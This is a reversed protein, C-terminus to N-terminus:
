CVHVIMLLVTELMHCIICRVKGLNAAVMDDVEGVLLGNKTLHELITRTALRHMAAWSTGPKISTAVAKVAELVGTYVMRQDDTFKGSVPFSCTIDACYCHYEAGMDLLAIDGHELKRDNPAGAHGYHLTSANPGCACICTYAPIRCGGRYYCYHLFLSELQYEGMGPLTNRMVDVHAASSVNSVHQLVALEAKTKIVRLNAMIQKSCFFPAHPM